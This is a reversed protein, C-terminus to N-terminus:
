EPDTSLRFKSGRAEAAALINEYSNLDKIVQRAHDFARTNSTIRTILRAITALGESPRYWTEEADLSKRLFGDLPTTNLERAVVNLKDWNKAVSKGEVSPAHNRGKPMKDLRIYIAEM